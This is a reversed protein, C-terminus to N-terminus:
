KKGGEWLLRGHEDGEEKDEEPKGGDDVEAETGM